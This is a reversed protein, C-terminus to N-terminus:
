YDERTTELPTTTQTIGDAHNTTARAPKHHERSTMQTGDVRRDRSAVLREVFARPMPAGTRALEAFAHAAATRRERAEREEAAQAALDDSLSM